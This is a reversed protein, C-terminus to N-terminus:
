LELIKIPFAALSDPIIFITAGAFMLLSLEFSYIDFVSPSLSGVIENAGLKFIDISINTFDILSKHNLVVGKPTGTSGSTNIICYPDTDILNSITRQLFDFKFEVRELEDINIIKFNSNCISQIKEFYVSNTIIIEPQILQVINNIRDIPTNVDLNMYSNGSMTIGLNSVVTQYSKPLYVGIPQNFGNHFESINIALSYSYDRLEDFNIRNVGDIIAIKKPYKNCTELFYQVLNTKYNM